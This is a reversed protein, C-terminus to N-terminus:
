SLIKDSTTRASHKFVMSFLAVKGSFNELIDEMDSDKEGEFYM